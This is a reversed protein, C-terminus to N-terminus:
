GFLDSKDQDIQTRDKKSKTDTFGLTKYSEPTGYDRVRIEVPMPLAHGFLLAQQRSDLSSLVSRLKRQGSVGSLVSDVDRNNDLLCVLKTGLQSMVEEDIQSPRQDVILLTVNYKRMERAITGFITQNALEPTLYKHAEEITIVLPMPEDGAGSLAREKYEAYRDYIRRTLLNAVLIYADTDRGYKGFELVVNIGRDLYRLIQNVSDHVSTTDMFEFRRFESLRRHLTSLAGQNVNIQGALSNFSETGSINLFELLWNKGYHRYLSHAADAAQPSLNLSERLIEVDEPEVEKYGIRVVYDPTLGRRKSHEEDLTFIAVKSPFLQKLGKVQHNETESYGQWGYESHMDFVLNAAKGSQLIGALLLRTLFTKGTGSKGFVGNSRKTLENIDLCLKTEMDLPSGIWFKGPAEKGFILEIDAHTSATVKSFHPPVTKAAQPSPRTNNTEISLKPQVKIKGYAATGTAVESMIGESMEESHTSLNRDSSELIVDSVQGFFRHSKGEITVLRGVKVDEISSESALRVELGDSLSGGVIVGSWGEETNINKKLQEFQEESNM